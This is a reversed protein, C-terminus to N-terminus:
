RQAFHLRLAAVAIPKAWAPTAKLVAKLDQPAVIRGRACRLLLLPSPTAGAAPDADTSNDYVVLDALKPLLRVLNLRSNDFRERIRAIPIDHGGRAVRQRVRAIHLEVDRLGVFWVHVTMGVDAGQELLATMTQGGLTTEFAFVGRESIARQLLRRGESWAAGNLQTQTLQRARSANAVSLRRAAEDPDFFAAGAQRLAAGGISSKGSGNCGALVYISGSAARSQARAV